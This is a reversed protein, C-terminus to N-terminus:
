ISSTSVWLVIIGNDVEDIHLWQRVSMITNGYCSLLLVVAVIDVGPAATSRMTLSLKLADTERRSLAIGVMRDVSSSTLDIECTAM